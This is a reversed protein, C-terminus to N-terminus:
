FINKNTFFFTFSKGEIFIIERDDEKTLDICCVESSQDTAVDIVEFTHTQNRLTGSNTTAATLQTQIQPNDNQRVKLHKNGTSPLPASNSQTIEITGQINSEKSTCNANNM